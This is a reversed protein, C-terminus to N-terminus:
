HSPHSQMRSCLLDLRPEINTLAPRLATEINSLSSRYKTKIATLTSFASECLYTSAFPLLATVASDSLSPYEARVSLWFAHLKKGSFELRLRSDSSLDALEEQSKLSLHETSQIAFPNQIWDLKANDLEPLFYKQFQKLLNFLHDIVLPKLVNAEVDNSALFEETYSFMEFSNNEVKQKWINLKKIFAEIKSKLTFINTNEGQLSLNLENLKELLDSLYCLKLLWSDNRFHHVLDSNKETLFIMVENKLMLLRRLAKAKSLWRVECHLLLTKFESEMEDCLNAFIRTNLARSKVFNIIKVADQVVTNLDPSLRKAVLAERHIMCHTFTIPTDTASRVRAHFGATHGTMAAAGDTCVGVCDKWFLGVETFFDDVKQFIDMGTTREHLPRCFLLDEHIDNNYIYRVYSLLYAMNTIDTSEDLQIAFKRSEKIRLILQERQDESIEAIRRSVTNNSLSIKRMENAEKKGHVIASMKIAAPLILEEGINYPKKSKAILLSAEFSARTYKGETVFESEFSQRQRKSARLLHQFFEVPKNRHSDHKTHLHRKLKAPKLSESALVKNCILCLPRHENNESIFTFGYQLFSESYTRKKTHSAENKENCKFKKSTCTPTTDAEVAVEVDDATPKNCNDKSKKLWSDM